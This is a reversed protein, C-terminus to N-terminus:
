VLPEYGIHSDDEISTSVGKLIQRVSELAGPKFLPQNNNGCQYSYTCLPCGDVTKCECRSLITEVRSFAEPLRSFLLKSAGNGGPSGDYVFIVGSDGMSVGGIERTSGGTLMDSSEILVHELAHYAGGYLQTVGMLMGRSDELNRKLYQEVSRKPPPAKFAIGRTLYSYVLPEALWEKGIVKGTRTELTLYGTVEQTMRLTCYIVRMGLVQKAEHVQVIAPMISYLPRTYVRPGQYPVVRARGLGPRYKFEVSRYANGGHLYIAGPHLEQAAMPMTREGIKKRETRIEVVDGIGRISYEHWIKRARSFDKIRVTGDEDISILGEEQLSEFLRMQRPFMSTRLKGTMAAAILQVRGVVENEPEMYAADIDTFYKEPKYRYFSSIPDNDRLALVAVSEQGKRGARGVRQTLRTISVIMSVVCDLDGIDIGLELTPTSVIVPLAGRRFSDEVELRYKKPLGARHVMSKIGQERLLLNLLEAESHTNGFVLTKFGGRILTSVIDTIMSYKSREGPYYMMFHVPGRRARESRVLYTDSDFLMDAFEKPNAVTASAGIKQLRGTELELRKLIYYVNAGMSGTYLHIEDLVVYRVSRLIPTLRSRSWGLHYHLVDPNTLLIDPPREYLRDRESSSVDGDFIGTILSAARCMERIKEYQDRALAKTPYILLARVGPNFMAEDITKVLRLIIPLIFAETKGQGTPATIVVDRGDLIAGFAEEQFRYLRDIGRRKLVERLRNPIPMDDISAGYDADTAPMYKYSVLYDRGREVLARVARPLDELRSGGALIKAKVESPTEVRAPSKGRQARRRTTPEVSLVETAATRARPASPRLRGSMVGETFEEYADFLDKSRGDVMM